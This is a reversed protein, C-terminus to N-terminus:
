AVEEDVVDEDVLDEDVLDAAAAVPRAALGRRIRRREVESTGGWVGGIGIGNIRTTLAYDLCPALFECSGCLRKADKTSGGKDPFFLEPDVQACLQTGDFFPAEPVAPPAPLQLAPAEPVHVPAIAVEPVAVEPVAVEPVAVRPVAADSRMVCVATAARATAYGADWAALEDDALYRLYYLPRGGLRQLWGDLYADEQLSAPHRAWEGPPLKSTTSTKM